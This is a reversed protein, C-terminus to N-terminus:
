DRPQLLTLTSLALERYLKASLVFLSTAKKIARPM